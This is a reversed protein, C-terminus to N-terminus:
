PHGLLASLFPELSPMIGTIKGLRINISTTTHHNLGNLQVASVACSTPPAYVEKQHLKARGSTDGM